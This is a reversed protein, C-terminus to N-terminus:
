EMTRKQPTTSGLVSSKGREVSAYQVSALKMEMPARRPEDGTVAKTSLPAPMASPPLVPSVAITVPRHKTRETKKAGMNADTGGQAVPQGRTKTLRGSRGERTVWNSWLVLDRELQSTMFLDTAHHNALYGLDVPTIDAVNERGKNDHCKDGKAVTYCIAEDRLGAERDKALMAAGNRVNGRCPTNKDIGDEVPEYAEDYEDGATADFRGLVIELFVPRPLPRAPLRPKHTGYIAPAPSFLVFVAVIRHGVRVDNRM